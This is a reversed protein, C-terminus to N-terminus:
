PQSGAIRLLDECDLEMGTYSIRYSVDNDSWELLGADIQAKWQGQENRTGRVCVGSQRSVMVLQQIGEPYSASNEQTRQAQAVSIEGDSGDLFGYIRRISQPLDRVDTDIHTLGEPLWALRWHREFPDKVVLAVFTLAQDINGVRATIEWCGESSFNIGGSQFGSEGYGEVDYHGQAPPAPADLRRGTVIVKGPTRRYVGMKWGISGDELVYEPPVVIKGGVGLHIVLASNGYNGYYSYEDPVTDEDPLTVPCSAIAERTLPEPTFLPTDTPLMLSSLPTDTPLVPSPTGALIREETPSVPQQSPSDTVRVSPPLGATGTPTPLVLSPSITSAGEEADICGTLVALLLSLLFTRKLLYM